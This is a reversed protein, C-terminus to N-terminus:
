TNYKFNVDLPIFDICNLGREIALQMFERTCVLELIESCKFLHPFEGDSIVFKTINEYVVQGPYIKDEFLEGTEDDRVAEFESLEADLLSFHDVPLFIYYKKDIEKKQVIFKLPVARFKVNLDDCVKLFKESVFKTLYGYFDFELSKIKRDSVTFEYNKVIDVDNPKTEFGDWEWKHQNLRGSLRIPCEAGCAKYKLIYYNKETM